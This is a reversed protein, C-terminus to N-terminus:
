PRCGALCSTSDGMRLMPLLLDWTGEAIRVMIGPYSARLRTISKPLLAAAATLLTGVAVKGHLGSRHASLEEALHRLEGLVVRASRIVLEGSTTPTAGRRSREFLQAGLREEIDKLMKSAAPQTVNLRAAAKAVSREESLAVIFTLQPLKLRTEPLREPLAPRKARPERSRHDM